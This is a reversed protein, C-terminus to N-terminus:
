NLKARKTKMKDIGQLVIALDRLSEPHTKSIIDLDETTLKRLTMDDDFILATACELCASLDGPGPKADDEFMSTSADIQYGCAPCKQPKDHFTVGKSM